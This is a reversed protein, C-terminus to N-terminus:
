HSLWDFFYGLFSRPKRREQELEKQLKQVIEIMLMLERHHSEMLKALEKKDIGDLIAQKHPQKGHQNILMKNQSTLSSNDAQLQPEISKEVPTKYLMKGGEVSDTKVAKKKVKEINKNKGKSEISTLPIVYHFGQPTSIRTALLNGNKIMRRITQPSKGLKQAAEKITIFEENM